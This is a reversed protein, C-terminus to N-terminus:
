PKVPATVVSKPTKAAEAADVAALRVREKEWRSEAEVNKTLRAHRVLREMAETVAGHPRVLKEEALLRTASIELLPGAEALRNQDMIVGGLMSRLCEVSWASYGKPDAARLKEALTLSTRFAKEAEAPMGRRMFNQGQWSWLVAVTQSEPGLRSSALEIRKARWRAARPLDNLEDAIEVAFRLADEAGIERYGLREHERASAEIVGLAERSRGCARLSGVCNSTVTANFRHGFGFAKAMRPQLRLFEDASRAAHGCDALLLGHMNCLLLTDPHDVGYIRERRPRVSEILTLGEAARGVYRLGEALTAAAVMTEPHDPGMVENMTTLQREFMAVAEAHRGLDRLASAHNHLFILTEPHKPGFTKEILPRFRELHALARQHQRADSLASALISAATLVHPNTEGFRESLRKIGDELLGIALPVRGLRHYITGLQIQVKLLEPSNPGQNRHRAEFVIEFLEAAKVTDGRRDAVDALGALAVLTRPHEPGCGSLLTTHARQFLAGAREYDGFELLARGLNCITNQHGTNRAGLTREEIPLIKELLALGERKAGSDGLAVALSNMAFLTRQDEPGYLRERLELCRKLNSIALPHNSHYRCNVGILWRLEAEVPPALDGQQDLRESARELLQSLTADRGLREGSKRGFRIQGDVSTMALLDQSVFRYLAQAQHRQLEEDRRAAEKEDRERQASERAVRESEARRQELLRAEREAGRAAVENRHATRAQLLGWTTGGIGALLITALLAGARAQTRRRKREARVLLESSTRDLEAQRGRREVQDRYSRILGAVANGDAPRAAPERNLCALAISTLESDAGCHELRGRAETVDGAVALGLATGTATGFVSKGTLITTLVGGLAFVDARADVPEGRAQEPAMYAPTGLIMGCITAPSDDRDPPATELHNAPVGNSRDPDTVEGVADLEKAVGWDMVQVEGFAGIMVNGPKLDRHVIGAAHAYGVAQAIREFTEVYQHQEEPPAPQGGLLDSLTRGRILKMVLYPRGDGLTGIGHVPPISPHTLRASIRAETIFRHRDEGPLLTKIAVERRLMRDRAAYVVGM